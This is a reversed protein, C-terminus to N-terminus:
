DTVPQETIDLVHYCRFERNCIEYMDVGATFLRIGKHRCSVLRAHRFLKCGLVERVRGVYRGSVSAIYCRKKCM